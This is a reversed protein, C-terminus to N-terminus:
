RIPKKTAADLIVVRRADEYLKRAARKSLYLAVHRWDEVTQLVHPADDIFGVHWDRAIKRRSMEIGKAEQTAPPKEGRCVKCFPVTGVTECGKMCRCQAVVANCNQCVVRGHTFPPWRHHEKWGNPLRDQESM